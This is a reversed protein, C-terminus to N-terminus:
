TTLDPIRRKPEERRQSNTGSDAPCLVVAIVGARALVSRGAAVPRTLM